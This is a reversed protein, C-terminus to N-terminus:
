TGFQQVHVHLTHIIHDILTSSLNLSMQIQDKKIKRCMVTYVKHQGMKIFFMNSVDTSLYITVNFRNIKHTLLTTSM